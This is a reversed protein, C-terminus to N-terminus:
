FAFLVLDDVALFIGQHKKLKKALAVVNKCHTVRISLCFGTGRMQM